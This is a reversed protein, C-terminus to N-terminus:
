GPSSARVVLNPRPGIERRPKGDLADMLCRAVGRGLEEIHHDLASVPPDARQCALSDDWSVLAVDAPVSSGLRRLVEIAVTALHGGDVLVATPPNERKMAAAILDRCREEDYEAPSAQGEILGGSVYEQFVQLRVHTQWQAPPGNLWDIRRHGTARLHDLVERLAGANDVTVANVTITQNTDGLVAYPLRLERLHDELDDDVTVDKCVVADVSGDGAWRAFTAREEDRDAVIQIIMTHGHRLLEEELGVVLRNYFHESRPTWGNRQVTMGFTPVVM